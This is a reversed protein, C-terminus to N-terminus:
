DEVAKRYAASSVGPTPVGERLRRRESRLARTTRTSGVAFAVMRKRAGLWGRSGQHVPVWGAIAPAPADLSQSRIVVTALGAALAAGLWAVAVSEDAGAIPLSVSGGSALAGFTAAAILSGNRAIHTGSLPKTSRAGMCGCPASERRSLAMALGLTFLALLMVIAAGTLLPAIGLVFLVGLLLEAIPIVASASRLRAPSRAIPGALPFSALAREFVRRDLLKTAAAVVLLSGVALRAVFALFELASTEM